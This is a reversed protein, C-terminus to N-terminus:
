AFKVGINIPSAASEVFATLDTITANGSSGAEKMTATSSQLGSGAAQTGLGTGTEQRNCVGYNPTGGFNDNFQGIWYQTNRELTVVDGSTQTIVGTSTTDLVYEGLYTQPVGGNDTYFGINVAGTASSDASVYITISSVAGTHPSIFPWMIREETNGSSQYARDLTGWGPQTALMIPDEEGNWNWDTIQVPWGNGGGAELLGTWEGSTVLRCLNVLVLRRMEDENAEEIAIPNGVAQVTDFTVSDLDTNQLLTYVRPSKKSADPLPM